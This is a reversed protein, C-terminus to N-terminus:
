PRGQKQKPAAHIGSRPHAPAGRLRGRASQVLDIHGSRVKFSGFSSRRPGTFFILGFWLKRSGM